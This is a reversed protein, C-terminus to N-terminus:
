VSPASARRRRRAAGLMVMGGLAWMGLTEPEPVASVPGALIAAGSDDWGYGNLTVSFAENVGTGAVSVDVWGYNWDTGTYISLGYLGSGPGTADQQNKREMVRTGNGYVSAPGILTGAAISTVTVSGLSSDLRVVYDIGSSLNYTSNSLYTGAMGGINYVTENAGVVQNMDTKTHVTAQALPMAVVGAIAVALPGRKVNLHNMM